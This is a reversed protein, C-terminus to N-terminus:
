KGNKSVSRTNKKDYEMIMNFFRYIEDVKRNKEIFIYICHVTNLAFILKYWVLRRELELSEGSEERSSVVGEITEIFRM